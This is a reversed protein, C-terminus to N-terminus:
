RTVRLARNVASRSVLPTKQGERIAELMSLDELAEALVKHFLGRKEQLVEVLAQKLANKLRADSVDTIAMSEGGLREVM